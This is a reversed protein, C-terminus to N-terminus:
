ASFHVKGSVTHLLSNKHSYNTEEPRFETSLSLMDAGLLSATSPTQYEKVSFTNSFALSSCECVWMYRCLFTRCFSGLYLFPLFVESWVWLLRKYSNIKIGNLYAFCVQGHARDLEPMCLAGQLQTLRPNSWRGEIEELPKWLVRADTKKMVCVLQLHRRHGWNLYFDLCLDDYGCIKNLREHDLPTECLHM